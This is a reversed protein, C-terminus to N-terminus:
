RRRSTRMTPVSRQRAFPLSRKLLPEAEAFRELTLYLEGLNNLSTAVESHDPGLAKEYIALSRKYLREADAYNGQNYHLVRAYEDGRRGRCSRSRADERAPGGGTQGM